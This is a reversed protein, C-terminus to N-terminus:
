TVKLVILVQSVPLSQSHGRDPGRLAPRHLHGVSPVHLVGDPVHETAEPGGAGVNTGGLQLLEASPGGENPDCLLGALHEGLPDSGALGLTGCRDRSVECKTNQFTSADM